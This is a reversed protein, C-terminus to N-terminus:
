RRAWCTTSSVAHECVHLTYPGGFELPPPGRERFSVQPSGLPGANGGYSERQTVWNGTLLYTLCRWSAAYVHRPPRGWAYLARVTNLLEPTSVSSLWWDVRPQPELAAPNARQLAGAERGSEYDHAGNCASERERRDKDRRTEGRRGGVPCRRGARGLCSAKSSGRRMVYTKRSIHLASGPNRGSIGDADEGEWEVLVDLPRGRRGEHRRVAMIRRV